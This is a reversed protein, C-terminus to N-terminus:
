GFCVAGVRIRPLLFAVRCRRRPPFTPDRFSHGCQEITPSDTGVMSCLSVRLSCYNGRTRRVGRKLPAFTYVVHGRPTLSIPASVFTQRGSELAAGDECLCIRLSLVFGLVVRKVQDVFDGGSSKH